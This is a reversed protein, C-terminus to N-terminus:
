TRKKKIGAMGVLGAGLFLLSLPEPVANATGSLEVQLGTPSPGGEDPSFVNTVQFELTNVGSVFGSSITFPTFSSFGVTPTAIGTNTGNLYIAANNDAAFKGTIVATAPNLGTLNFSIDYDYLGATYISVERQLSVWQSNSTNSVWNFFQYSTPDAVIPSLPAPFNPAPSLTITYHPDAAGISLLANSNDVGTGYLGPIPVAEAHVAWLCFLSVVVPLMVKAAFLSVRFRKFM